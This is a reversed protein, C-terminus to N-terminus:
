AGNEAGASAAHRRISIIRAAVGVLVVVAGLAILSWVPIPM